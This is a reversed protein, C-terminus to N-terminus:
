EGRMVLHLLPCALVTLLPWAGLGPAWQSTFAAAGAIVLAYFPLMALDAKRLSAAKARAIRRVRMPASEAPPAFLAIPMERM